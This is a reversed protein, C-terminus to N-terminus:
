PQRLFDTLADRTDALWCEADDLNRMKGGDFQGNNYHAQATKWVLRVRALTKTLDDRARKVARDLGKKNKEKM